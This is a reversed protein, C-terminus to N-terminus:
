TCQTLNSHPQTQQLFGPSHFPVHICATQKAHGFHVMSDPIEPQGSAMNNRDTSRPRAWDPTPITRSSSVTTHAVATNTQVQLARVGKVVLTCLFRYLFIVARTHDSLVTPTDILLPTLEVSRALEPLYTKNVHAAMFGDSQHYCLLLEFIFILHFRM